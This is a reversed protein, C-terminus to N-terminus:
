STSWIFTSLNRKNKKKQTKTNNHQQKKTKNKKDRHRVWIRFYGLLNCIIKTTNCTTNNQINKMWHTAVNKFLLKEPFDLRGLYVYAHLCTCVRVHACLHM